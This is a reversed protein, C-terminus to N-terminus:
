INQLYKNFIYLNNKKKKHIFLLCFKMLLGVAKWALKYHNLFLFQNYRKLKKNDGYLSYLTDCLPDFYTKLTFDREEIYRAYNDPDASIGSFDYKCVFIDIYKYTIKKLCVMRFFFDWDACIKYSEEYFFHDFFLKRKILVAQHNIGGGRFFGFTLKEPPFEERLYGSKNYYLSNGYVIGYNNNLEPLFISLVSNDYFIDGSNMFIIYEGKAIKIGKNMANYVGNDKESIWNNIRPCDLILERSGDDSGGDIVVFEFDKIDQNIVSQITKILGIKNNYNITIVTIKNHGIM